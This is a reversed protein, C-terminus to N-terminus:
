GGGRVRALQGATPAHQASGVLVAVHWLHPHTLLCSVRAADSSSQYIYSDGRGGGGGGGGCNSQWRLVALRTICMVAMM